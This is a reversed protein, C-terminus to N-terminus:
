KKGKREVENMFGTATRFSVHRGEEPQTLNGAHLVLFKRYKCAEAITFALFHETLFEDRKQVDKIEVSAIVSHDYENEFEPFTILRSKSALADFTGVDTFGPVTVDVPSLQQVIQVMEVFMGAEDSKGEMALAMMRKQLWDHINPRLMLKYQTASRDKYTRWYWKLFTLAVAPTSVFVEEPVFTAAGRPFLLSAGYHPKGAAVPQTWSVNYCVVDERHLARGMGKLTAFSPESDHFLLLKPGKLTTFDEFEAWDQFGCVLRPKTYKEAWATLAAAQIEFQAPFGVFVACPKELESAASKSTKALMGALLENWDLDLDPSWDTRLKAPETQEVGTPKGRQLFPVDVFPKAPERIVDTQEVNSESQEPRKLARSRLRPDEAKIKIPEPRLVPKMQHNDGVASMSQRRQATDTIPRSFEEDIAAPQRPADEPDAKISTSLRRLDREDM